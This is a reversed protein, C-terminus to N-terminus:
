LPAPWFVTAGCFLRAAQRWGLHAGGLAGANEAERWNAHQVTKETATNRTGFQCTRAPQPRSYCGAM